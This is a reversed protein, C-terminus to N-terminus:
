VDWAFWLSLLGIGLFGVTTGGTDDVGFLISGVALTFGIMSIIGLGVRPNLM